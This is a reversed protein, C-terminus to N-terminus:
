RWPHPARGRRVPAGQKLAQLDPLDVSRFADKEDLGLILWGGAPLNGLACLTSTVSASLGGAASKVEIDTTDGGALQLRDLLTEILTMAVLPVRFPVWFHSWPLYM